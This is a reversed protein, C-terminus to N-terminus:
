YKIFYNVAWNTPRTETIGDQYISSSRSANFSVGNYPNRNYAGGDTGTGSGNNTGVFVGSVYGIGVEHNNTNFAGTINPLASGQKAYHIISAQVPLTYLYYGLNYTPLM